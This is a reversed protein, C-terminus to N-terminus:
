AKPAKELLALIRDSIEHPMPSRLSVGNRPDGVLFSTAVKAAEDVGRRYCAEGYQQIVLAAAQDAAEHDRHPLANLWADCVDDWVAKVAEDSPKSTM